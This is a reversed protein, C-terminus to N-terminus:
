SWCSSRNDSVLSLSSFVFEKVQFWNTRLPDRDWLQYFILCFEPVHLVDFANFSSCNGMFRIILCHTWVQYSCRAKSMQIQRGQNYDKQNFPAVLDLGNALPFLRKRTRDLWCQVTLTFCNGETMPVLTVCQCWLHYIDGNTLAFFRKRSMFACHPPPVDVEIAFNLSHPANTVQWLSLGYLSLSSQLSIAVTQNDEWESRVTVCVSSPQCLSLCKWHYWYCLCLVCKEHFYM